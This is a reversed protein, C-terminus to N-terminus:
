KEDDGVAADWIKEEPTYELAIQVDSEETILRELDALRDKPVAANEFLMKWAHPQVSIEIPTSVAQGSIVLRLRGKDDRCQSIFGNPSVDVSVVLKGKKVSRDLVRGPGTMRHLIAKKM